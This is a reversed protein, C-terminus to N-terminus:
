SSEEKSSPIEIERGLLTVHDYPGVLSPDCAAVMTFNTDCSASSLLPIDCAENVADLTPFTPHEPPLKEPCSFQWSDDPLLGPAFDRGDPIDLM